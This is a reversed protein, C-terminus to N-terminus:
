LKLKHPSDQYESQKEPLDPLGNKMSYYRFDGPSISKATKRALLVAWGVTQGKKAAEEYADKIAVQRPSGGGLVRGDPRPLNNEKMYVNLDKRNGGKCATLEVLLLHPNAKWHEYVAKMKDQTKPTMRRETKM